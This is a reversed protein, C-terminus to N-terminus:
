SPLLLLLPHIFMVHNSPMVMEIAHTQTFEPLQDHVPPGPTNYDMPDCHTPCSQIVLRFQYIHLYIMYVFIEM